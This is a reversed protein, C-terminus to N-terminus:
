EGNREATAGPARTGRLESLDVGDADPNPVMDYGVEEEPLSNLHHDTNLGLAKTVEEGKEDQKPPQKPTGGGM